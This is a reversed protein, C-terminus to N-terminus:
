IEKGKVATLTMTSIVKEQASLRAKLDVLDNEGATMEISICLDDGPMAPNMFKVRNVQSLLVNRNLYLRMASAVLAIQAVGPLIKRDPFHGELPPFDERLSFYASFSNEECGKELRMEKKLIAFTNKM